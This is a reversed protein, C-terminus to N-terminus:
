AVSGRQVFEVALLIIFLGGLAGTAAFFRKMRRAEIARAARNMTHSITGLVPLDLANELQHATAFTSRLYGIGFGSGVGAGIAVVLVGFLLLPRNPAAPANPMVPPDIVEFRVGSRENEVQGRLRLQERDRLLEDYQKRLVDYDRSIRQAEAVVAPGATQNATVSALEAQVAAKRSTLAQVNAMREARISELSSYAPNPTGSEPQNKAQARLSEIQKKHSIVDPHEDTMGRSKMAALESMAQMLAGRAGGAAGPIALVRPTGAIQGSVAALASQAAALDAEIGRLETRTAEMKRILGETGGIMEPYKAEFALRRQEAAELAKQRDELQQDLFAISERMEGRNGSLNEERFIDIMKQVIDQSLKANEAESLDSRGSIATIEFLNDQQSVVKINKALEAVAGEMQRASTIEAGLRTSRIVKELSVSGTMVQRVREVERKLDASGLGVQQALPDDLKVFIRASAEYTNPILAVALWGLVCIGWAVALVLWRRHWVSHIAARIEDYFSSM